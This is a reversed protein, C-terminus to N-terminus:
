APKTATWATLDLPAAGYAANESMVVGASLNRQTKTIVGYADNCALDITATSTHAAAENTNNRNQTTSNRIRSRRCVMLVAIVGLFTASIFVIVVAIIVALL